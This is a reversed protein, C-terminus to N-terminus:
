YKISPYLKFDPIIKQNEKELEMNKQMAAPWGGPYLGDVGFYIAGAVPNAWISYVGVATNVAAKEPAVVLSSEPNYYYNYVGVGDIIFSAGTFVTGVM